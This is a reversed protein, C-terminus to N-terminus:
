DEYRRNRHLCCLRYLVFHYPNFFSFLTLSSLFLRFLLLCHQLDSHPDPPTPDVDNAPDPATDIVLGIIFNVFYVKKGSFKLTSDSISFIIVVKVSIIFLLWSFSAINHSFTLKKRLNVLKHLVKPLIRMHIPMLISIRIRFRDPMLGTGIWLLLFEFLMVSVTFLYSSRPTLPRGLVSIDLALTGYPQTSCSGDSVCACREVQGLCVGFIQNNADKTWHQPDMVNQPPDPDPDASGHRQSISGSGSASGAIKTM